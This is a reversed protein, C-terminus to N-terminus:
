YLPGPAFCFITVHDGAGDYWVVAHGTPNQGELMQYGQIEYHTGDIPVFWKGNKTYADYSPHADSRDCCSWGDKDFQQMYWTAHPSSAFEVKWRAQVPSVVAGPTGDIVLAFSTLVALLCFTRVTGM